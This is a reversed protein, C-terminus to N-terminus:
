LEEFEPHIADLLGTDYTSTTTTLTLTEGAVGPQEGDSQGGSLAGSCGALGAIGAAAGAAVFSRRSVVPQARSAYEGDGVSRQKSM